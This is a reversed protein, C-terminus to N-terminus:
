ESNPHVWLDVVTYFSEKTYKARGDAYGTNWAAAIPACDNRKLLAPCLEPPVSYRADNAFGEHATGWCDDIYMPKNTPRSIAAQSKSCVLYDDPSRVTDPQDQSLRGLDAHSGIDMGADAQKPVLNRYAPFGILGLFVVVLAAPPAPSSRAREEYLHM